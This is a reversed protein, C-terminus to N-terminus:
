HYAVSDSVKVKTYGDARWIGSLAKSFVAPAEFVADCSFGTVANSILFDEDYKYRLNEQIIDMARSAQTTQGQLLLLVLLYNEYDLYIESENFNDAKESVLSAFAPLEALTLCFSKDNPIIPVKKGRMIAATEIM